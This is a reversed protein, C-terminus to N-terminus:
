DCSRNTVHGTVHDTGCCTVCVPLVLRKDSGQELDISIKLELMHDEEAQALRLYEDEKLDRVPKNRIYKMSYCPHTDDILQSPLLLPLYFLSLVPSSLLM